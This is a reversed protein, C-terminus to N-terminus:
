KYVWIERREDVFLCVKQCLKVRESGDFTVLTLNQPCFNWIEGQLICHHFVFVVMNFYQWIPKM